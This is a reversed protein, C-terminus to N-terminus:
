TLDCPHLGPQSFQHRVLLSLQSSVRERDVHLSVTLLHHKCVLLLVKVLVQCYQCGSGPSGTECSHSFLNIKNLVGLTHYKTALRVSQYLSKGLIRLRPSDEHSPDRVACVQSEWPLKGLALIGSAWASARLSSVVLWPLGMASVHTSTPILGGTSTLLLM